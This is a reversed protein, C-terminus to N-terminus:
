TKRELFKLFFFQKFTSVLVVSGSPPALACVPLCSAKDQLILKGELYLPHRHFETKEAFVLLDPVHYDM